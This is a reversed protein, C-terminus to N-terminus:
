HRMMDRMTPKVKVVVRNRGLRKAEYLASDARELLSEATDGASFESIGVSLTVKMPASVTEFRVASLSANLMRMRSETQRLNLDAVLVAFEDGGIRAVLDSKSRVSNKLAQAVAILARDGIAHGHEDNINKFHDFDVIAVVFNTREAVWERLTRDFAGRNNIRTLPDLSAEQRTSNLQKELSTVKDNFAACTDEWMKQREAALSRLEGVERLLRIKLQKVDDIQVLAEFREMSTGLNRNFSEGDGAVIALAERVMDVLTAIEEKHEMRQRELQGLVQRCADNCDDISKLITATDAAVVISKRCNEISEHLTGEDALEVAGVFDRLLTLLREVPLRMLDLSLAPPAASAPAAKRFGLGLAILDDKM